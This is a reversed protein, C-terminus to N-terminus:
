NQKQAHLGHPDYGGKPPLMGGTNKVHMASRHLAQGKSDYSRRDYSDLIHLQSQDAAAVSRADRHNNNNSKDLPNYQRASWRGASPKEDSSTLPM